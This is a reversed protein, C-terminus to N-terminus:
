IEDALRPGCGREATHNFTGAMRFAYPRRPDFREMIDARVLPFSM